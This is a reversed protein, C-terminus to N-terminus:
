GKIVYFGDDIVGEADGNQDMDEIKGFDIAYAVSGSSHNFFTVRDDIEMETMANLRDRLERYTWVHLKEQKALVAKLTTVQKISDDNAFEVIEIDDAKYDLGANGSDKLFEKAASIVAELTPFQEETRGEQAYNQDEISWFDGNVIRAKFMSQTVFTIESLLGQVFCEDGHKTEWVIQVFIGSPGNEQQTVKVLVGLFEPAVPCSWLYGVGDPLQMPISAGPKLGQAAKLIAERLVSLGTITICEPIDIFDCKFVNIEEGNGIFAVSDNKRNHIM